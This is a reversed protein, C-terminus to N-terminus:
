AKEANGGGLLRDAEAAFRDAADTIKLSDAAESMKTQVDPDTVISHITETLLPGTVRADPILVAAGANELVRANFTQHDGAAQPYPILISPVGCACLEAVSMAGARGVALDAAALLTDMETSYPEISVNDPVNGLRECLYSRVAEDQGKGTLLKWSLIEGGPNETFNVVSEAANSNISVAGQSGGMVVIFQENDALGLKERAAKRDPNVFSERVPNGCLFTKNEPFYQEAETFAVGIRDAHRGTLRNSRGPYANQEHIMNPIRCRQAEKLLMAGTFGGTAIILDPKHKRILEKADRRSEFLGVVAELTEKSFGREFGRARILELPFGYKPVIDKEMGVHSGIFIIEADPHNERLKQGISLGPYIHGGTGGAAILIKM